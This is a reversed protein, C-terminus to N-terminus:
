EAHEGPMSDAFIQRVLCYVTSNTFKHVDEHTVVSMHFNLNM